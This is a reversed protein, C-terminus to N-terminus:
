YESKNERMERPRILAWLKAPERPSLNSEQPQLCWVVRSQEQLAQTAKAISITVQRLLKALHNQEFRLWAFTEMAYEAEADTAQPNVCLGKRTLHSRHRKWQRAWRVPSTFSGDTGRTSTYSRNIYGSALTAKQQRTTGLACIVLAIIFFM